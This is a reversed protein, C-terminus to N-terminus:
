YGKTREEIHYVFHEVRKIGTEFTGDDHLTLWRFGPNRTTDLSFSISGPQFQICTSPSSLVRIHDQQLETEQHIHGCLIGHVEPNDKLIEFLASGNNLRTNDLWQCGVPLPPHHFSILTFKDPSLSKKLFQLEPNSLHGYIRDPVRSSLLLIQWPDLLFEKVPQLKKKPQSYFFAPDDHNGFLCVVPCSFQSFVTDLAQYSDEHPEQVLDGTLLILDPNPFEKQVLQIVAALSEATNVGLLKGAPTSFLHTDTIQLIQKM